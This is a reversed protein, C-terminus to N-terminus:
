PRTGGIAWSSGSDGPEGAESRDKPATTPPLFRGNPIGPISMVIPGLDGDRAELRKARLRRIALDLCEHEFDNDLNSSLVDILDAHATVPEDAADAFFFTEEPTGRRGTAQPM